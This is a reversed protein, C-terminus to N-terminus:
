ISTRSSPDNPKTYWPCYKNSVSKLWNPNYPITKTHCAYWRLRLTMDNLSTKAKLISRTTYILKSCTKNFMVPQRKNFKQMYKLAQFQVSQKYSILNTGVKLNLCSVNENMNIWEWESKTNSLVNCTIKLGTVGVEYSRFIQWVVLGISLNISPSLQNNKSLINKASRVDPLWQM